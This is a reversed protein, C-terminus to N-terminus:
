ASQSDSKLCIRQIALLIVVAFFLSVLSMWRTDETGVADMQEIATKDKIFFHAIVSISNYTFHAIVPLWISKSWLLLYGMVAGLLMRPIFGYFQLHAASFIFAVMWIVVHPNNIAKGFIRQLVGRFFFEEGVGAVVGFLLINFLFISVRDTQLFLMVQKQATDEMDRLMTEIERMSEPFVVLENLYVTYNLFPLFVAMLLVTLIVVPPSVNKLQLFEAVDDSLLYATGYAALFFSFISVLFQMVRLSDVNTMMDEKSVGTMTAFLTCVAVGFVMGFISLSILLAFQLFAPSNKFMGQLNM